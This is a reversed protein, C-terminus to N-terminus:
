KTQKRYFTAQGTVDGLFNHSEYGLGSLLPVLRRTYVDRSVQQIYVCEPTMQEVDSKVKVEFMDLPMNTDMASCDMNLFTVRESKADWVPWTKPFVEPTHKDASTTRDGGLGQIDPCATRTSANDPGVVKLNQKCGSSTVTRIFHHVVRRAVNSTALM